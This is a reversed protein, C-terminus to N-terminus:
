GGGVKNWATASGGKKLIEQIQSVSLSKVPNDPSALAVLRKQGLLICQPQAHDPPFVRALLAKERETTQANHFVTELPEERDCFRGLNASYSVGARFDPAKQPRSKLFAEFLNKISNVEHVFYPIAIAPEQNGETERVSALCTICYCLPLCLIVVRRVLYRCQM